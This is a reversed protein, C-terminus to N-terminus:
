ETIVTFVRTKGDPDGRENGRRAAHEGNLLEFRSSWGVDGAAGTNRRAIHPRHDFEM